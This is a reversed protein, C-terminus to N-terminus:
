RRYQQVIQGVADIVDQVDDETMRSYIPLSVVRQSQAYAVPFDNVEYGYIERYYPHLHLPIFHVSTGINREKMEEIFRNRFWGPSEDNEFFETHFRLPFLHWAHECDELLSPLELEEFSSFAKMYASAIQKRREWMEELRSLQALGLAAALDPLNYKYGAAMVEYYWSGEATYRKWADKSIGHLSMMRCREALHEDQTTIMGGEGTTMSKTAYFSFCSLVKASGEMPSGILHGRYRSPLAHAADEIYAFGSHSAAAYISDVDFPHGAFHVPIVAQIVGTRSRTASFAKRVSDLKPTRGDISQQLDEITEVLKQPDLNLTDPRVDVFVPVADFYRVVEASAAFTYPTTLVFDGAGVGVAELALHLGATCSSVAVAHPIGLYQAFEKELQRTKPGTTLWGSELVERVQQLEKPGLDPLAFPLFTGRKKM